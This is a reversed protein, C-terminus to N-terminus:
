KGIKLFLHKPLWFERGDILVCFYGKYDDVVQYEHGEVVFDDWELENICLVKSM